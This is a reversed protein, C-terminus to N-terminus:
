PERRPARRRSRSSRGTMKGCRPCELCIASQEAFVVAIWGHGCTWCRVREARARLFEVDRLTPADSM